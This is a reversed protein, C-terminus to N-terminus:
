SKLTNLALTAMEKLTEDNSNIYKEVLPVFGVKVADEKISQKAECLHRLVVCSKMVVSANTSEFLKQLANIISERNKEFYDQGITCDRVMASIVALAKQQVQENKSKTIINLVIPLVGQDVIAQQSIPNNQAMTSLIWCAMMRIKSAAESENEADFKYLM